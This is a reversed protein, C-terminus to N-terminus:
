SYALPLLLRSALALPIVLPTTSSDYNNGYTCNEVNEISNKWSGFKRKKFRIRVLNIGFMEGNGWFDGFGGFDSDRFRRFQRVSKFLNMPYTTRSIHSRISVSARMSLRVCPRFSARAFKFRAGHCIHWSSAVIWWRPEDSKCAVPLSHIRVTDNYAASTFLTVGRSWHMRFMLTKERRTRINRRTRM